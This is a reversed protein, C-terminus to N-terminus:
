KTKEKKKFEGASIERILSWCCDVLMNQSRKGCCRKEIQSIDQNLREGHKDSLTAINEPPFFGFPSAAFSTESVTVGELV